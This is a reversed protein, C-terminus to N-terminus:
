PGSSRAAQNAASEQIGYLRYLIRYAFNKIGVMRISSSAM